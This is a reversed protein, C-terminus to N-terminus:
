SLSIPPVCGLSFQEGSQAASLMKGVTVLHRSKSMLSKIDVTVNSFPSRKFGFVPIFFVARFVRPMTNKVTEQCAKHLEEM